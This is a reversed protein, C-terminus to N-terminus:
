AARAGAVRRRAPRTVPKGGDVVTMAMRRNTIAARIVNDSEPLLHGYVDATTKISEHGLRRSVALLPVGDSLLWAAHTHRLDHLRPTKALGNKKALTRATAWAHNVRRQLWSGSGSPDTFVAQDARKGKVLRALVRATHRDLVIRRQGARSKVPVRRPTDGRSLQMTVDIWANNVDSVHVDDVILGCAESVRLGTGLIVDVLDALAQGHDRDARCATLLLEAEPTSLFNATRGRKKPAQVHTCPNGNPLMGKGMAHKFVSSVMIHIDAASGGADTIGNIVQRIEDDTIAEIPRNLLATGRNKITQRYQDRSKASARTRSAIYREAVEGFTPSTYSVPKQGTVLEFTVVRPDSAYVLHGLAQIAGQMRRADNVDSYTVSQPTGNRAGSYRWKLRYATTGDQRVRKEITAM